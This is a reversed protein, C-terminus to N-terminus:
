KHAHNEESSALPTSDCIFPTTSVTADVEEISIQDEGQGPLRKWINAKYLSVNNLENDCGRAPHDKICGPCAKIRPDNPDVSCKGGPMGCGGIMRGSSMTIVSVIWAFFVSDFM